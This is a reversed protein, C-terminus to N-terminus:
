LTPDNTISAVPARLDRVVIEQSENPVEISVAEILGRVSEWELGRLDAFADLNFLNPQEGPDQQSTRRAINPSM